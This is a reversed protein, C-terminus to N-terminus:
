DHSPSIMYKYQVLFPLLQTEPFPIESLKLPKARAATRLQHQFLLYM